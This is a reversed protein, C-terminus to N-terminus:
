WKQNEEQLILFLGPGSVYNLDRVLEVIGPCEIHALTIHDM